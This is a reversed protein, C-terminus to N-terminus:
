PIPLARENTSLSFYGWFNRWLKNLLIISIEHEHKGTDSVAFGNRVSTESARTYRAARAFLPTLLSRVAFRGQKSQKANAVRPSRFRRHM